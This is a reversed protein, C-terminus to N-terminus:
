KSTELAYNNIDEDQRRSQLQDGTFQPGQIGTVAGVVVFDVSGQQPPPLVPSEEAAPTWLESHFGMDGAPLESSTPPPVSDLLLLSPSGQADPLRPM